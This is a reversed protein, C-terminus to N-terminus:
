NKEKKNKIGHQSHLSITNALHATLEQFERMYARSAELEGNQELAEIEDRLKALKEKISLERWVHLLELFEEERTTQTDLIIESEFALRSAYSALDAPLMKLFEELTGDKPRKQLHEFLAGTSALVVESERPMQGLVALHPGLLLFGAIREELKAKRSMTQPAPALGTAEGSTEGSTGYKGLERWLAEETVKLARALERVWHAKEIENAIDAVIPLIEEGIKRKAQPDGSKNKSLSKKLFFAVGGVAGAVMKPWLTPDKLVIDAPDKGGEIDAISVSFDEKHALGVARRSAEVGASDVDFAFILGDAIRRLLKLHETTLATGSVAVTNQVGAQYSLMQDMYGEVVVASKATRIAQKAKSFGFLFRSKDYLETQPSNIYKGGVETSTGFARGGFGIVRGQADQLPFIIRSRFRDYAGRSGPVTLGARSLEEDSFGNRKLHDSLARWSDPAFGIRFEGITEPLLGREKLYISVEKNSALQAEFFKAAEEVLEFLRARISREQPAEQSIEVGAREALVRLAEPFTLGDIEMVFAFIDGGKSCGFCHWSERAPSVFFSPTRENHFPCRAKFNVGAKELKLYGSVLTVVDLRAKILEASTM